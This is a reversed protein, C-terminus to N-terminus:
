IRPVKKIPAQFLWTSIFPIGLYKEHKKSKIDKNDLFYEQFELVKFGHSSAAAIVEDKTHVYYEIERKIYHPRLGIKLVHESCCTIGVLCSPETVNLCQSFFSNLCKFHMLNLTSNVYHFTKKPSFELFDSKFFYINKSHTFKHQAVKLMNESIDICTLEANNKLLHPICRGTGSGIELIRPSTYKHTQLYLSINEYFKTEINKLVRIAVNPKEDYCNAWSDYVAHVRERLM